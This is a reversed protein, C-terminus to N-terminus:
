DYGLIQDITTLGYKQPSRTDPMDRGSLTSDVLYEKGSVKQSWLVVKDMHPTAVGIIQAVGCLVVLGFPIDETIYRYGFNPEWNCGGNNDGAAEAPRCPHTLGIYAKNSRIAKLLCSTDSMEDSYCRKYWDFVHCVNSFDPGAPHKSLTAAIAMVEDGMATLTDATFEDMGHYFLPPEAVPRGDWNWWRGYLIAPHIYANVGMLTMGLLHGHIHLVPHTGLTEQLVASPERVPRPDGYLLAGVLQQKTGKVEATRGFEEIRCAWPLSEFSVLTCQKGKAGLIGWCAFEFGAQGPMGVIITGPQIYPELARLYQEHAFAPVVIVIVNCGLAVEAPDKSVMSPKARIEGNHKGGCDFNVVFDHNEMANTWREAEDSYLTLVRVEVNKKSSAIGAYAHAGNGGGCILLRTTIDSDGM